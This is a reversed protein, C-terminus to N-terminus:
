PFALTGREELQSYLIFDLHLVSEGQLLTGKFVATLTVSLRIRHCNQSASQLLPSLKHTRLTVSYRKLLWESYILFYTEVVCPDTQKTSANTKTNEGNNRRGWKCNNIHISSKDASLTGLRTNTKAKISKRWAVPSDFGSRPAQKSITCGAVGDKAQRVRCARSARRRERGSSRGM